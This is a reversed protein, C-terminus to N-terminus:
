SSHEQAIHTNGFIPPIVGLISPSFLPVGRDKLPHNPPFCGSNESVDMHKEGFFFCFFVPSTRVVSIGPAFFTVHSVWKTSSCRLERKKM